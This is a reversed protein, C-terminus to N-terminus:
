ACAARGRAFRGPAFPAVAPAERGAVIAALAASVAPALLIGHRFGGAAWLVGPREGAGIAPRGDPTAPRLGAAAEALELEGLDPVARIAEDLLEHVAGALVTQDSREEVTGGVVVEGHPRPAVYFSEARVVMRVPPAGRARLRLIQGKVPRLPVEPDLAGASWGAAILVRPARIESGDQARVGGVGGGGDGILEAAAVDVIRVGLALCAERLAELAQRPDVQHEDTMVFGGAVAGSLGPEIARLESGTRWVPPAGLSAVTEGHRRLPAIQEPRSAILLTGSDVYGVPRGADAELERAFVPWATASDVMLRHM